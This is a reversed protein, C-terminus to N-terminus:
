ELIEIFKQASGPEGAGAGQQGKVGAGPGTTKTKRKAGNV